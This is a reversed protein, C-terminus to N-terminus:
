LHIQKMRSIPSFYHFTKFSQYYNPFNLVIFDKLKEAVGKLWHIEEFNTEFSTKGIVQKLYTKLTTSLHLTLLPEKSQSPVSTGRHPPSVCYCM